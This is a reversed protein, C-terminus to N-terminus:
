LYNNYRITYTHRNIKVCKILCLLSYSQFSIQFVFADSSCMICFVTYDWNIFYSVFILFFIGLPGGFFLQYKKKSTIDFIISYTHM